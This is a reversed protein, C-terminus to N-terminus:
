IIEGLKEFGLLICNRKLFIFKVALAFTHEDYYTKEFCYIQRHSGHNKSCITRTGKRLDRHYKYYKFFHEDEETTIDFVTLKKM